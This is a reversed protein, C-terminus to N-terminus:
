DNELYKKITENFKKHAKKAGEFDGLNSLIDSQLPILNLENMAQKVRHSVMGESMGGLIGSCYFDMYNENKNRLEAVLRGASRWSCQFRSLPNDPSYWSVNCLGAYFEQAFNYDQLLAVISPKKILMEKLDIDYKIPNDTTM